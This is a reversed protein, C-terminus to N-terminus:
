GLGPLLRLVASGFTGLWNALTQLPGAAAALPGAAVLLRTLKELQGAVREPDPQRSRLEAEVEDLQHSAEATTVSDM